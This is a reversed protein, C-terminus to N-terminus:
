DSDSSVSLRRSKCGAGPPPRVTKTSRYLYYGLQNGNLLTVGVHM